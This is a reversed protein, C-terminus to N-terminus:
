RKANLRWEFYSRGFLKYTQSEKMHKIHINKLQMKIAAFQKENMKEGPISRVLATDFGYMDRVYTTGPLFLYFLLNFILVCIIRIQM